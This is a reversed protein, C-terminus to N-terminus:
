RVDCRRPDELAAISLNIWSTAAFYCVAISKDRQLTIVFTERGDTAEGKVFTVSKIEFGRGILSKFAQQEQAQADQPLVASCIAIFVIVGAVFRKLMGIEEIEIPLPQRNPFVLRQVMRRRVRRRGQQYAGGSIEHPGANPHEHDCYQREGGTSRGGGLVPRRVAPRESLTSPNPDIAAVLGEGAMRRTRHRPARTQAADLAANAGPQPV